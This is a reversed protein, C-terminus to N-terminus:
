GKTAIEKIIDLLEQCSIEYNISFSLNQGEDIVLKGLLPTIESPNTYFYEQLLPLIQYIWIYKIDNPLESEPQDLLRFFYSHGIMHERDITNKIKNNIVKIASITTLILENTTNLLTFDPTIEYFTFRRRLAIDILAISRDSTNMTGIIYLNKPVSFSSNSYPLQVTTEEHEGARKSKEILTILEGFIKSINGRNIEDIILGYKLNPNEKAKKCLKLFAGDQVLYQLQGTQDNVKATIGEIFQEYAFSQHFTIMESYDFVDKLQNTYYTKGTGPPGYLILNPNKDLLEIIQSTKKSQYLSKKEKIRPSLGDTVEVHTPYVKKSVTLGKFSDLQYKSEDNEKIGLVLYKLKKRYKLFIIYDGTYLLKRFDVFEMSDEEIYSIEVQQSNDGRRSRATTTYCNVKKSDEITRGELYNINNSIIIIPLELIYRRKFSNIKDQKELYNFNHLYPFIDMESATLAIHTQNTSTNHTITNSTALKKVLMADFTDNLNEINLNLDKSNLKQDKIIEKISEMTEDFIPM